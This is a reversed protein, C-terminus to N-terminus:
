PIQNSLINNLAIQKNDKMTEKIVQIEFQSNYYLFSLKKVMEQPPTNLYLALILAVVGAILTYLM